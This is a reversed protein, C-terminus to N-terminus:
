IWGAETMEVVGQIRGYITDAIPDDQALYLLLLLFLACLSLRM